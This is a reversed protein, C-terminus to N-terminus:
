SEPSDRNPPPDAPAPSVPATPAGERLIGIGRTWILSFEERMERQLRWGVAWALIGLLTIVSIWELSVDLVAAVPEDTVAMVSRWFGLFDLRRLDEFGVLLLFLGVSAALFLYHAWQRLTVEHAVRALPSPSSDDPIADLASGVLMSILDARDHGEEDGTFVVQYDRPLNGPAYGQTALAIRDFVSAHIRVPVHHSACLAGIDRPKYRYYAALGARSDYLRDHVNQAFRYHDRRGPLFRLGAAEAETMIWDLSALSLGQKPYGGGVNSHAGSFWVQLIREGTEEGEEDWLVPHFTHREDDIALAHCGKKVRPSLKRDPFRFRRIRNLADAAHDFPLGLADVTDWVGIFEIQIGDFVDERATLRDGVADLDDPKFYQHYRRRYEKYAGDVRRDLESASRMKSVDIIGCTLVLGALTRVTFAGRSFGFLYIRDGPRYSRCLQAYLEKVNNTFGFGVAGGLIKLVKLSETGVGDDYFAVQPPPREDGEGGRPRGYVDVAEFLKFVNTGRGKGGMNGTGDSCIVINKSHPM